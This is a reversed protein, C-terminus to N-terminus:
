WSNFSLAPAFVLVSSANIAVTKVVFPLSNFLRASTSEDVQIGGTEPRATVSTPVVEVALLDFIREADTFSLKIVAVVVVTIITTVITVQVIVFVLSEKAKKCFKKEKGM